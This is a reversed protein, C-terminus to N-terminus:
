LVALLQRSHETPKVTRYVKSVTGEEDILFTMRKMGMYERGFSKKLGWAGYSEGVKHDKDALLPFPLSHKAAFKAQDEVTDPSVGLIVVSRADYFHYDDRFGCAEKTCGPTDARPYFYLVVRQGRFNSLRIPDGAQDLLEFDPAPDGVQPM